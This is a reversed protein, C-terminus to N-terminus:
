PREEGAVPAPLPSGYLSAPTVPEGARADPDADRSATDAHAMVHSGMPTEIRAVKTYVADTARVWVKTRHDAVYAITGEPLARGAAYRALCDLDDFFLPEESPAVLQGASRQSSVAM